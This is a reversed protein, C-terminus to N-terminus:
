KIKKLFADKFGYSKFRETIMGFEDVTLPGINVKYVEGNKSPILVVPYKDAYKKILAELNERNGLTAIQLYYKGKELDSETKIFSEINNVETVVAKEDIKNMVPDNVKIEPLESLDSSNNVVELDKTESNETEEAPPNLESPVLVIPAYEDNNDIVSLAPESIINETEPNSEQEIGDVEEVPIPDAESSDDVTELSSSPEEPSTIDVAEEISDDASPITETFSEVSSKEESVSDPIVAEFIEESNESIEETIVAESPTEEPIEPVEHDIKEEEIQLEPIVESFQEAPVDEEYAPVTEEVVDSEPETNFLPEGSLVNESDVSEITENKIEEPEVSESHNSVEVTKEEEARNDTLDSAENESNLSDNVSDDIANQESYDSEEESDSLVAQGSANEDLSGTRKTIKVQVNSDRKINLRAAAEPSLMIAVGESADISGLILVDVTCGNAPNSVTVSDGPLYGITRAFLGKPMEGDDAVVARGDLSPRAAAFLVGVTLCAFIFSILKKM